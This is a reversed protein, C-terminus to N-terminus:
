ESRGVKTSSEARTAAAPLNETLLQLDPVKQVSVIELQPKSVPRAKRALHKAVDTTRPFSM